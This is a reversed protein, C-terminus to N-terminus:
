TMRLSGRGTLGQSIRYASRGPNKTGQANRQGFFPSIGHQVIEEVKEVAGIAGVATGVIVAVALPATAPKSLTEGLEEVIVVVITRGLGTAGRVPVVLVVAGLTSGM